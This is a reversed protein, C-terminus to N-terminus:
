DPLISRDVYVDTPASSPPRGTRIVNRKSGHLVLKVFGSKEPHELFSKWEPDSRYRIDSLLSDTVVVINVENSRRFSDFPTSKDQIRVRKWAGCKFYACSPRGWNRALYTTFGPQESLLNVQGTIHLSRILEIAELVPKVPTGRIRSASALNPTAIVVFAAIGIAAFLERSWRVQRGRLPDLLVAMVALLLTTLVFVYHARPYIVLCSAIPAASVIGVGILFSKEAGAAARLRTSIKERRWFLLVSLIMLLAIHAVVQATVSRIHVISLLGPGIRFQSFLERPLTICNRLIHHSFTMPSNLAAQGISSANGFNMQLIQPWDYWPSLSTNGTWAIWNLSFNQGFAGFDRGGSLPFGFYAVGAVAFSFLLLPPAANRLTRRGQVFFVFSIASCVLFALYMEPRAYAAILCGQALIAFGLAKQKPIAALALFTLLILLEFHNVKPVVSFNANCVLLFFSAITSTPLSARRRRLVVYLLVPLSVTLVRYNAYFLGVSDTSIRALLSYWLGYIPAYLGTGEPSTAAFGPLYSLGQTLYTTEDALSIDVFERLNSTYKLGGVILGGIAVADGLSCGGKITLIVRRGPEIGPTSDPMNKM